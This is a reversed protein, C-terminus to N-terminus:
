RSDRAKLGLELLRRIAESRKPEDDQKSAWKGIRGILDPSLRIATVPDM